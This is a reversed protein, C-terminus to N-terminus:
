IHFKRSFESVLKKRMFLVTFLIAAASVSASVMAAWFVTSVKAFYFIIPLFGLASLMIVSIANQRSYKQVALVYVFITATAVFCILPLGYNTTTGSPIHAAFIAELGYMFGLLYILQWFVRQGASLFSFLTNKLLFVGYYLIGGVVISWYYDSPIGINVFFCVAFILSVAFFYWLTAWKRKQPKKKSRDPVPFNSNKGRTPSLVEHCLPCVGVDGEIEIKCYECRM